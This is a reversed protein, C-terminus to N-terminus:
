SCQKRSSFGVLVAASKINNQNLLILRIRVAFNTCDCTLNKLFAKPCSTEKLKFCLTSMTKQLM